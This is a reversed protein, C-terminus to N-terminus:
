ADYSELFADPGGWVPANFDLKATIREQEDEDLQEFPVNGNYGGKLFM